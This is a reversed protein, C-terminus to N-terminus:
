LRMQLVLTWPVPKSRNSVVQSSGISQYNLRTGSMKAYDEAWKAYIPYPFTAGAGTITTAAVSTTALTLLVALFKKM